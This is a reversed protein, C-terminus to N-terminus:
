GRLLGLTKAGAYSGTLLSHGFASYTVLLEMKEQDTLVKDRSYLEVFCAAAFNAQMDLLPLLPAIALVRQQSDEKLKESGEESPPNYGDDAFHKIVSEPDKIGADYAFNRYLDGSTMHNHGTHDGGEHVVVDVQEDEDDDDLVYHRHFILDRVVLDIVYVGAAAGLAQYWKV